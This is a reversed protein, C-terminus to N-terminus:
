TPLATPEGRPSMRGSGTEGDVAGVTVGEAPGFFKYLEWIIGVALVGVVGWVIAAARRSIM